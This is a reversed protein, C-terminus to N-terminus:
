RRQAEQMTKRENLDNMGAVARSIKSQMWFPIRTIFHELVLTNITGAFATDETQPAIPAITTM